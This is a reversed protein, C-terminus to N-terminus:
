PNALLFGEAEEETMAFGFYAIRPMTTEVVRGGSPSPRVCWSHQRWMGDRSLTYGTALLLTDRNAEWLSASNSHCHSTRGPTLTAGEGYWLEGRASIAELDEDVPPLCAENGGFGLLRDRLGLLAREDAAPTGAYRTAWWTGESWEQWGESPPPFAPLTPGMDAPGTIPNGPYWSAQSYLDTSVTLGRGDPGRGM